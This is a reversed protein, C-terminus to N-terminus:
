ESESESDESESGDFDRSEQCLIQKCRQIMQQRLEVLPVGLQSYRDKLLDERGLKPRSRRNRRTQHNGTKEMSVGMGAASEGDRSENMEQAMKDGSREVNTSDGSRKKGLVSPTEGAATSCGGSGEAEISQETHPTNPKSRKSSPGPLEGGNEAQRKKQQEPPM